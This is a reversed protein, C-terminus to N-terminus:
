PKVQAVPQPGPFPKYTDGRMWSVALGGWEHVAMNIAGLSPPWNLGFHGPLTNYDVPHATVDWGARRFLGVARPMHVASTILIWREKAKPKLKEFTLIASEATNRATDEFQVRSVAFGQETFFRKAIHAESPGGGLMSGVGGTFVLQANPHARGLRMFETLREVSGGLNVQDRARTMSTAESGGLVVIGTVPNEHHRVTPFREELVNIMIPGLPTMGFGLYCVLVLGFIFRGSRALPTFLLLFAVMLGLAFLATPQLVLALVKSLFFYVDASNM